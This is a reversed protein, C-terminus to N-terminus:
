VTCNLNEILDELKNFKKNYDIQEPCSVNPECVCSTAECKITGEDFQVTTNGCILKAPNELLTGDQWALYAFTGLAGAIILLAIIGTLTFFKIFGQKTKRIPIGKDIDIAQINNNKIEPKNNWEEIYKKKEKKSYKPTGNPFYNERGESNDIQQPQSEDIIGEKIRTLNPNLNDKRNLDLINKETM